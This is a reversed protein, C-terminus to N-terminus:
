WPQGAQRPPYLQPRAKHRNLITLALLQGKGAQSTNLVVQSGRQPGRSHLGGGVGVSSKPRIKKSICVAPSVEPVRPRSAGGVFTDPDCVM